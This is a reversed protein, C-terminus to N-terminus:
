CIDHHRLTIQSRKGFSDLTLPQDAFEDQATEGHADGNIYSHAEHASFPAPPHKFRDGRQLLFGAKEGRQLQELQQFIRDDM